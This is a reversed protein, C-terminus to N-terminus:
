DRTWIPALANVGFTREIEADSIELLPRGSVVGANNILIDVPGHERIVREATDYIMDRSSVDCFYTACRLGRENLKKGVTELADRNCDWLIVRAGEAAFTEAM